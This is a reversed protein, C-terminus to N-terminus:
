PQQHKDGDEQEHEQEREEEWEQTNQGRAAGDSNTNLTKSMIKDPGDRRMDLTETLHCLEDDGKWRSQTIPTIHKELEEDDVVQQEAMNAQQWM